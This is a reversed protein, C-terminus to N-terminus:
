RRVKVESEEWQINNALLQCAGEEVEGCAEHLDILIIDAGCGGCCNVFSTRGDIDASGIRM